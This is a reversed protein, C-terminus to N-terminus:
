WGGLEADNFVPNEEVPGLTVDWQNCYQQLLAADVLNVENDGNVDAAVLDLEVEWQNCYQQLLAADVLNVENDGNVDGYLIDEVPPQEVEREEGCVNCDADYEDDYTHEGTAGLKVAMLNTNLTCADDLWAAGCVDCYWYEINGMAICTPAVAEVHVVNHSVEREYGCVECIASCDDFYTHEGPVYTWCISCEGGCPGVDHALHNWCTDCYGNADEDVHDATAPYTLGCGYACEGELCPAWAGNEHAVPEMAEGCYYCNGPLCAPGDYNQHGYGEVTEGCKGCTGGQCAVVDHEGYGYIENGCIECTVTACDAIGEPRVCDVTVTIYWPNLPSNGEADSFTENCYECQYYEVNGPNACDIPEVAAYHTMNHSAERLNEEWCRSCTTSCEYDFIHGGPIAETYSDGCACTYTMEGDSTCTAEITIESEYVHSHLGMVINDFTGYKEAIEDNEGGMLSVIVSTYDGSNFVATFETWEDGANVGSNVLNISDGGDKVLLNMDSANKAWLTIEYYTNPEVAINAQRVHQWKGSIVSLASGGDMGEVIEVTNKDWLNDWPFVDGTEFDGNYIYGDFSPDILEVVKIDDVYIEENANTGGGCINIRVNTATATFEFTLLNWETKNYWASAVTAGGNQVQINQGQSLAKAWMTVEYSKGIEVSFDQFATGGWGGTPNKIYLGYDGNKAAEAAVATGSYLTWPTAKGTEFDGNKIFGDDSPDKVEALNVDDIYADEAVGTGGGNLNLYISTDGNAIFTTTVQTWDGKTEWGGGYSAGSQDGKLSWNFGSNNVKYWFSFEYTKGDEVQFSQDLFGGWGGNGKINAGFSGTHAAAANIETSQWTRWGAADGTEFGGNTIKGVEAKPTATLKINDILIVGPDNVEASLKLMLNAAQATFKISNDVWDGSTENMWNTGTTPHNSTDSNLVFMLFAGNGSVRKSQWSLTYETGVEVAINAMAAESWMGCNDIQLAGDVISASANLTWGEDGNAFDGNAVVGVELEEAKEVIKLDDICYVAANAADSNSSFMVIASTLSAMNITGEFEQWETTVNVTFAAADAGWNDNIKFNLTTDKNAKAKFTVVYDVNTQFGSMYAYTNQWDGTTADFVIYGNENVSREFGGNTGDDFNKDVIVDGPAAFISMPLISFLMLAAALIAVIKRFNKM